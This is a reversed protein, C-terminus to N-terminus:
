WRPINHTPSPCTPPLFISTFGYNGEVDVNARLNAPPDSSTVFFLPWQWRRSVSYNRQKGRLPLPPWTLDESTNDRSRCHVKFEFFHDKLGPVSTLTKRFECVKIWNDEVNPLVPMASLTPSSVELSRPRQYYRTPRKCKNCKCKRSQCRIIVEILNVKFRPSVLCPPKCGKTVM